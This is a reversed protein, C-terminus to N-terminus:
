TGGTSWRPPAGRDGSHTGYAEREGGRLLVRDTLWELQARTADGADVARTLLPLCARQFALDDAHHVLLWAASAGDTGVLHRGPWGHERVITRMRDTNRQVVEQIHRIPDPADEWEVPWAPSSSGAASRADVEARLEDSAACAQELQAFAAQDEAAM